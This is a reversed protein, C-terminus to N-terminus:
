NKYFFRRVIITILILGFFLLLPTYIEPSLIIDTIGPAKTNQDIINDIGNGISVILFHIWFIIDFNLFYILNKIQIFPLLIIASLFYTFCSFSISDHLDINKSIYITLISWILACLVFFINGKEVIIALGFQFVNLLFLGGLFGLFIGYQKNKSLKNKYILSTIIITLIPNITTVLVGGIGAFGFKTGSFFCFNYFILLLSSIFIKISNFNKFKLKKKLFFVVPLIASASIFFRAFTATIQDTYNTVIKASTWAIGWLTM